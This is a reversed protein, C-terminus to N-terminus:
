QQKKLLTLDYMKQKVIITLIVNNKQEVINTLVFMIIKKV